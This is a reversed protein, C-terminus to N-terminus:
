PSKPYTHPLKNITRINLKLVIEVFAQELTAM